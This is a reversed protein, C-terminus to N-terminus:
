SGRIATDPEVTGMLWAPIITAACLPLLGTALLLFISGGEIYIPIPSGQYVASQGLFFQKLWPAGIQLYLIGFLMGCLIGALGIIIIEMMKLEIIDLTHWGLAKFVGIEKKMDLSISSGQTWALLLVCLLLILWMLQFVGSRQAFGQKIINVLEEKASEQTLPELDGPSAKDGSIQRAATESLGDISNLATHLMGDKIFTMSSACAMVIFLPIFVAIARGPFRRINRVAIPWFIIHKSPRM